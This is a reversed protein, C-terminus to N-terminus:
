TLPKKTFLQTLLDHRCWLYGGCHRHTDPILEQYAAYKAPLSTVLCEIYELRSTDANALITALAEPPMPGVKLYTVSPPLRINVVSYTGMERSLDEYLLHSKLRKCMLFLKTPDQPLAMMTVKEATAPLQAVTDCVLEQCECGAGFEVVTDGEGVKTGHARVVKATITPCTTLECYELAVTDAAVAVRGLKCGALVVSTLPHRFVMKTRPLNLATLKLHALKPLRSIKVLPVTTNALTLRELNPVYLKHMCKVDDVTLETLNGCTITLTKATHVQLRRLKASAVVVHPPRRAVDSADYAFVQLQPPVGTVPQTSILKLEVLHPPLPTRETITVNLKCHLLTVNALGSLDSVSVHFSSFMTLREFQPPSFFEAVDGKRSWCHFEVRHLQPCDIGAFDPYRAEDDIVPNITLEKLQRCRTGAPVDECTITELQDWPLNAFSRGWVHKLHPLGSVDFVFDKRRDLYLTIILPPLVIKTNDYYDEDHLHTLNVLHSFDRIPRVHCHKLLLTEVTPPIDRAELVVNAVNISTINQSLGGLKMPVSCGIGPAGEIAVLEFQPCGESLFHGRALEWFAVSTVVKVRCQSPLMVMTALDVQSEDGSVVYEPSVEVVHASLYDGIVRHLGFGAYAIALRCGSPVDLLAFILNHVDTDLHEFRCGRDVRHRGEEM